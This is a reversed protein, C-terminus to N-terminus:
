KEEMSEFMEQVKRITEPKQRSSVHLLSRLDERDRLIQLEEVLDNFDDHPRSILYEYYDPNVRRLNDMASETKQFEPTGINAFEEFSVNLVEIVKQVKDFSPVSKDWGSISKPPIGAMREVKAVTLGREKCLEKVRSGYLM